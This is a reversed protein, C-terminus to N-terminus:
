SFNSVKGKVVVGFILNISEIVIGFIFYFWLSEVNM